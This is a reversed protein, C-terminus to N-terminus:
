IYLVHIQASIKRTYIKYQTISFRVEDTHRNKQSNKVPKVTQLEFVNSHLYTLLYTLLSM